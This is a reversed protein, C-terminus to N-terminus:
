GRVEVKILTKNEPTFSLTGEGEIYLTGEIDVIQFRRGDIEITIEETEQLTDYKQGKTNWKIIRM